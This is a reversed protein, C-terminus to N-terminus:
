KELSIYLKGGKWSYNIPIISELVTLTQNIDDFLVLRGSCSLKSTQDDCVAEVGYYEALKATVEAVSDSDITLSGDHWRTYRSVDTTTTMYSDNNYNIIQSPILTVTEALSPIEVEVSGDVLVVHHTDAVNSTSYVNFSTGKVTTNLMRSHVTFPAEPNHVVEFYGEGDIEVSRQTDNFEGIRFKTNGNLWVKTKDALTIIARHSTPILIDVGDASNLEVRQENITVVGDDACKIRAVSITNCDYAEDGCIVRIHEPMPIASLEAIQASHSTAIKDKVLMAGYAMAGLLLCAAFGISIHRLHKVIVRGSGSSKKDALISAYLAGKEEASMKPSLARLKGMVNLAFLLEKDESHSKIYSAWHGSPPCGRLCWLVFDINTLYKMKNYNLEEM